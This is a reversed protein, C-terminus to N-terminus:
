YRGSEKVKEAETKEIKFKRFLQFTKVTIFNWWNNIIRDEEAETAAHSISGWSVALELIKYNEFDITFASPLGMLWEQFAKYEGVQEIHWGYESKFTSYLFNLKGETTITTDSPVGYGELDICNIIYEKAQKDLDMRSVTRTKM